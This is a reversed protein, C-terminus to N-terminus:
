PVSDRTYRLIGKERAKLIEGKIRALDAPPWMAALEKWAQEERGSYLYALVIRLVNSALEVDDYINRSHFYQLADPKIRARAQAIEQDYQAKFLSGIDTPKGRVFRIYVAPAPVLDYPMNEFDIFGGDRTVLDNLEIGRYDIFEVPYHNSLKVAVRPAPLPTVIYYTWCCHAGGSYSEVILDNTGNRVVYMEPLAEVQADSGSAIVKGAGDRVEFDCGREQKSIRVQFGSIERAITKANGFASGGPCRDDPTQAACVLPLFALVIFLLVRHSV